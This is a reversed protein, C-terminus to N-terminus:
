SFTRAGMGACNQTRASQQAASRAGAAATGPSELADCCRLLSLTANTPGRFDDAGAGGLALARVTDRRQRAPARPAPTVLRARGSVSGAGLAAARRLPAAQTGALARVTLM